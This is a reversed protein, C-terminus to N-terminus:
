CSGVRWQYNISIHRGSSSYELHLYVNKEATGAAPATVEPLPVPCVAPSLYCGLDSWRPERSSMQWIGKHVWFPHLNMRHQRSWWDCQPPCSPVLVHHKLAFDTEMNHTQERLTKGVWLFTTGLLPSEADRSVLSLLSSHFTLGQGMSTGAAKSALTSGAM